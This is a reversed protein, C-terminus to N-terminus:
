NQYNKNSSSGANWWHKVRDSDVSVEQDDLKLVFHDGIRDAIIFNGEVRTVILELRKHDDPIFVAPIDQVGPLRFFTKTGDDFVDIPRFPADGGIKYGYHYSTPDLAPTLVQSDLRHKEAIFSEAQQKAQLQVERVEEPYNFSVQQYFKGGPASAVLYFEYTRKNTVLTLTTSIGSRVPKVYLNTPGGSIRWQITDGLTPKETVGEGPELQIHTSEGSQTLLPFVADASYTFTVIRDDFPSPVPTEAPNRYASEGAHVTAFLGLLASILIARAISRASNKM